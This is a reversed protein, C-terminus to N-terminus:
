YTRLGRIIKMARTDKVVLVFFAYLLYREFNGEEALRKLGVMNEVETGERTTTLVMGAGDVTDFDICIISEPVDHDTEQVLPRMDKWNDPVSTQQVTPDYTIVIDELYDEIGNNADYKFNPIVATLLLDGSTDGSYILYEYIFRNRETDDTNPTIEISASGGGGAVVVTQETSSLQEGWYTIPTIRFYYTGDPISGGSLVVNTSVTGPKNIYLIREVGSEMIYQEYNPRPRLMFTEMLTIGNYERIRYGAIDMVSDIVGTVGAGPKENVNRNIRIQNTEQIDSYAGVMEPSMLIVINRGKQRANYQNANEWIRKLQSFDAVDIGYPAAVTILDERNSIKALWGDFELEEPVAMSNKKAIAGWYLYHIFDYVFRLIQQTIENDRADTDFVFSRIDEYIILETEIYKMTVTRKSYQGSIELRAGKISNMGSVGGQNLYVRYQYEETGGQEPTTVSVMALEPTTMIFLNIIAREIQPIPLAGGSNIDSSLAKKIGERLLTTLEEKELGTLQRILSNTMPLQEPM